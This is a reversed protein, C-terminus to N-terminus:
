IHYLIPQTFIERKACLHGFFPDKVVVNPCKIPFVCGFVTNLVLSTKDKYLFAEAKNLWSCALSYHFYLYEEQDLLNIHVWSYLVLFGTICAHFTIFYQM